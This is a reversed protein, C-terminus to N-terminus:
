FFLWHEKQTNEALKRPYIKPQEYPLQNNTTIDKSSIIAYKAHSLLLHLKVFKLIIKEKVNKIEFDLNCIGFWIWFKFDLGYNKKTMQAKLKIQYKLKSM